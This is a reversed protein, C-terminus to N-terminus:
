KVGGNGSHKITPNLILLSKDTFQPSGNRSGLYGPRLGRDRKFILSFLGVQFLTKCKKIYM